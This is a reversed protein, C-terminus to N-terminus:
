PFGEDIRARARQMFEEIAQEWTDFVPDVERIRNSNVGCRIAGKAGFKSRDGSFLRDCVIIIGKYNARHTLGAM